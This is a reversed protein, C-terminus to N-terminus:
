YGAARQCLTQIYAFDPTAVIVETKAANIFLGHKPALEDVMRRITPMCLHWFALSLIQQCHVSKTLIQVGFQKDPPLQSLAEQLIHDVFVTFFTPAIVCGQRVGAKVTFSRRVEGDVTVVAETGTHLDEPLKIRGARCVRVVYVCEKSRWRRLVRVAPAQREHRNVCGARLQRRRQRGRQTLAARGSLPGRQDM